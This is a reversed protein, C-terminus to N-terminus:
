KSGEEPNGAPEGGDKKSATAKKSVSVKPKAPLPRGNVDVARKKPLVEHKDLVHATTYEHGTDKDRVRVFTPM